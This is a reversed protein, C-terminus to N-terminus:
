RISSGTMFGAATVLVGVMFGVLAYCFIANPAREKREAYIEFIARLALDELRSRPLARVAAFVQENM